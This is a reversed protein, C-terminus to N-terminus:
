NPLWAIRYLYMFPTPHLTRSTTLFLNGYNLGQGAHM